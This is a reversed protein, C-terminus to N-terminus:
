IIEALEESFAFKRASIDDGVWAGAAAQARPAATAALM